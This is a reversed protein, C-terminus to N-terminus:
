DNAEGKAKNIIDLIYEGLENAGGLFCSSCLRSDVCNDPVDCQEKYSVIYEEIEELAKRYRDCEKGVQERKQKEKIYEGVWRSVLTNEEIEQGTM